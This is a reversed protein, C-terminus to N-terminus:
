LRSAKHVGSVLLMNDTATRRLMPTAVNQWGMSLEMADSAKPLIGAPLVLGLFPRVLQM